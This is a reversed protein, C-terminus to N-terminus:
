QGTREREGRRTALVAVFHGTRFRTPWREAVEFSALTRLFRAHTEHRASLRGVLRAAPVALVRPCHLIATVEVVDFGVHELLRVVARPGLTAGVFYPVLRIRHLWSFPLANRLAVVPHAPNDLTLLLRGGPVLVRQLERLSDGISEPAEFHDLSSNSVVAHFSRDLFPLHRVDAVTVSLGPQRNRAHAAMAPSQDIAEVTDAFARLRAFLGASAVEDFVDTKLLRGVRAPLWRRCLAVNVDDSHRRWLADRGGQWQAAIDDWYRPTEPLAV